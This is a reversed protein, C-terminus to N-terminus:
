LVHLSYDPILSLSSSCRPLYRGTLHPHQKLPFFQISRNITTPIPPLPPPRLHPCRWQKQEDKKERRKRKDFVIGGLKDVVVM